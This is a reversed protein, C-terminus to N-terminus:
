QRDEPLDIVIAGIALVLACCAAVFTVHSPVGILYAAVVTIGLTVAMRRMDRATEQWEIV